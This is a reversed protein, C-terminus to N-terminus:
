EALRVLNRAPIKNMGQATCDVSFTASGSWSVTDAIVYTCGNRGSFNGNYTVQQSPFYLNGTLRSSSDGNFINNQSNAASRDGFFLIGSYAGTTPATMNISSNGNLNAKATGSLYITVGNGTVSANAGVSFDGGSVYYVGPALTDTGKLTIGNCYQGPSLSAGNYNSTNICPGVPSPTPLNSFPDPVSQVGHIGGPCGSLTMGGNNSIGGVAMACDATMSASGWVFLADSATSDSAVDCGVLNMSSSGTVNIARSASHSLAVICANAVVQYMAVARRHLAIPQNSFAATFFRPQNQTLLVEVAPNATNPGSLPPSNVQITGGTSSWGNSTAASTAASTVVNSASGNLVELAGAFAAADAASQLQQHKYYDFSTEMGFAAAGVVMPMGLAFIIAVNGRRDGTLRRTAKAIREGVTALSRM